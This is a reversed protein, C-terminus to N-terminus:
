YLYSLDFALLIKIFYVSKSVSLFHSHHLFTDGFKKLQVTEFTIKLAFIFLPGVPIKKTVKDFYIKSWYHLSYPLFLVFFRTLSFFHFM